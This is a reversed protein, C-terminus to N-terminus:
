SNKLKKYEKWSKFFIKNKFFFYYIGKKFEELLINFNIKTNKNLMLLHNRYSLFALFDKDNNKRQITKIANKNDEGNYGREHYAIANSLYRSKFNKNKLRWALDVDEKYMFFRNDFYEYRDKAEELSSRRYFALAGSVGFIDFDSNFKVSETKGEGINSFRYGKTHTLGICDIINTKIFSNNEYKMKYLKGGCSGYEKNSDMFTVIKELFDSELIIDQNTVLVYESNNMGIMKNHGVAFGLNEKNEILKINSYNEKIYNVSNDTSNNDLILIEYDKFTQNLISDICPKIYKLGNYVIINISVKM